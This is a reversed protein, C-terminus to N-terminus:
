TMMDFGAPPREGPRSKSGMVTRGHRGSAKVTTVRHTVVSPHFIGGNTGLYRLM